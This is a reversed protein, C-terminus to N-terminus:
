GLEKVMWIHPSNQEYEIESCATYGCKEYFDKATYQSHLTLRQALLQRAQKEAERLMIKGFGRGRYERLVALRGLIYDNSDAAKFLRCTAVPLEDDLMVLHIASRDIDDVEDVFGQEKVFVTIRIDLAEQPLFTFKKITIM